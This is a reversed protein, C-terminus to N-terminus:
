FVFFGFLMCFFLKTYDLIFANLDPMSVADGYGIVALFLITLYLNKFYINFVETQMAITDTGEFSDDKVFKLYVDM